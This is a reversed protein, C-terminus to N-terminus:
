EILYKHSEGQQGTFITIINWITGSLEYKM